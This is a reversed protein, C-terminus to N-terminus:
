VVHLCLFNCLRLKIYDHLHAIVFKTDTIHAPRNQISEFYFSHVFAIIKLQFASFYLQLSIVGRVLQKPAGSHYVSM